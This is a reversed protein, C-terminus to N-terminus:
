IIVNLLVKITELFAFPIRRKGNQADDVMCMYVVGDDVLYHFVYSNDYVYTM